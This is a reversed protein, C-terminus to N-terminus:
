ILEEWYIAVRAHNEKAVQLGLVQGKRMVGSSGLAGGGGTLVIM